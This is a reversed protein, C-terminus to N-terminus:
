TLYTDWPRGTGTLSVLPVLHCAWAWGLSFSCWLSVIINRHSVLRSGAGWPHGTETQSKHYSIAPDLEGLSFSCWLSVIFNRRSPSEQAAEPGGPMNGGPVFDQCRSIDRGSAAHLPSALDQLPSTTLDPAPAISFLLSPPNTILSFIILLHFLCLTTLLSLFNTFLFRYVFILFVVQTTHNTLLYCRHKCTKKPCTIVCEYMSGM